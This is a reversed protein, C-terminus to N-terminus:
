SILTIEEGTSLTITIEKEPELKLREVADVYKVRDEQNSFIRKAEATMVDMDSDFFSHLVSKIATIIQKLVEM